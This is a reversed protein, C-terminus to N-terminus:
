ASIPASTDCAGSKARTEALVKAWNAATRDMPFNMAVRGQLADINGATWVTQAATYFSALDASVPEVRKMRVGKGRLLGAM